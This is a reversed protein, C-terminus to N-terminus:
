LFSVRQLNAAALPFDTVVKRQSGDPCWPKKLFSVTKSRTKKAGL